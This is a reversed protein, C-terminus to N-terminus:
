NQQQLQSRERLYFWERSSHPLARTCFEEKSLLHSDQSGEQRPTSWQWRLSHWQQRLLCSALSRAWWRLSEWGTLLDRSSALIKWSKPAEITFAWERLERRQDLSWEQPLKRAYIELPFKLESRSGCDWAWIHLWNKVETTKLPQLPKQIRNAHRAPWPSAVKVKLWNPHEM